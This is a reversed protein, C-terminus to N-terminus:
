LWKRLQHCQQCSHLCPNLSSKGTEPAAVKAVKAAASPDYDEDKSDDDDDFEEEDVSDISMENASRKTGQTGGHVNRTHKYLAKKSTYVKTCGEVLCRVSCRDSSM